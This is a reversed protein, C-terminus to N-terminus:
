ILVVRLYILGLLIKIVNNKSLTEEYKVTSLNKKVIERLIFEEEKYLEFTITFSSTYQEVGKVFLLNNFPIRYSIIEVKQSDAIISNHEIFIPSTRDQANVLGSYLIIYLFLKRLLNHDKLLTIM